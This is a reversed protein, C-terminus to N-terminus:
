KAVGVLEFRWVVHGPPPVPVNDTWADVNPRGLSKWPRHCVAGTTHSVYIVCIERTRTDRSLFLATYFGGKYHRYNGSLLYAGDLGLDSNFLAVDAKQREEDWPEHFVAGTAHSVSVVYLVRTEHDRSLLLETHMGRSGPVFREQGEEPPGSESAKIVTVGFARYCSSAVRKRGV